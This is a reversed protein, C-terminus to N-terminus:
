LKLRTPWRRCHSRWPIVRLRWTNRIAATSRVASRARKSTASLRIEWNRFDNSAILWTRIAKYYRWFTTFERTRMCLIDLGQVRSNRLIFAVRSKKGLFGENRLKLSSMFRCRFILSENHVWLSAVNYLFFLYSSFRLGTEGM